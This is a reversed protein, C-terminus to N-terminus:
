DEIEDNCDGDCVAVSEGCHDCIEGTGDCKWCKVVANPYKIGDVTCAKRAIDGEGQCDPCDM